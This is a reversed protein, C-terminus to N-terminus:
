LDDLTYKQRKSIRPFMQGSNPEIYCVDAIPDHGWKYHILNNRIGNLREYEDVAADLSYPTVELDVSNEIVRRMVKIRAETSVIARFALPGAFIDRTVIHTFLDSASKEAMGWAIVIRGLRLTYFHPIPWHWLAVNKSDAIDKAFASPDALIDSARRPKKSKPTNMDSM